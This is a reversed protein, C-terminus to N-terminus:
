ALHVAELCKALRMAITLKGERYGVCITVSETNQFSSLVVRTVAMTVQVIVSDTFMM